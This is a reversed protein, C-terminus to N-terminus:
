TRRLAHERMAARYLGDIESDAMDNLTMEPAVEADSNDKSAAGREHEKCARWAADLLGLTYPRGATFNHIFEEREPTPSYDQRAHTWVFAVARDCVPRFKPDDLLEFPTEIERKNTAYYLYRGIAEQTMGCQAYRVVELEETETLERVESQRHGLKRALQSLLDDRVAAKFIRPEGDIEVEGVWTNGQRRVAVEHDDVHVITTSHDREFEEILHPNGTERVADQPLNDLFAKLSRAAVADSETLGAFRPDPAFPDSKDAAARRLAEANLPLGRRDIQGLNEGLFQQEAIKRAKTTQKV